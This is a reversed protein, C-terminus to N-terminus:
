PAMEPWERVRLHEPWESMDGGHSDALGARWAWQGDPTRRDVSVVYSGLQKWFVHSGFQRARKALREGWEIAFPRAKPGSEGGIITLDVGSLDVLGLDELLPEASVFHIRAPIRRLADLRSLSSRVGVTTGAWANPPLDPLLRPFNEPRKSLLM